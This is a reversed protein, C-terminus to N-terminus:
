RPWTAPTWSPSRSATGSRCCNPSCDSCAEYSVDSIVVHDGARLFTYFVAHLAAVGSALAVAAEGHELM